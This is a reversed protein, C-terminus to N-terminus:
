GALPLVVRKLEADDPHAVVAFGLQTMLRLMKANDALVDGVISRYGKARACQILAGMLRRGLGCKQWTDAVALAFEVTEGDPTQTYRASGVQRETGDEDVTAILALERDYDVQTFRAIMAPSLARTADMFRFRRAEDSLGRVFAQELPADEPRVPRVRVVRADGVLWEQCLEAPYPHIALHAYRGAGTAANPDIVIRVDGVRAGHDDVVLPNIEVEQLWPLECAMESLALLVGEVVAYDVPPMGPVGELMRAVRTSDILDRALFANLPPLCVAPDQLLGGLPGGAGFRIVPGFAPDRVIALALDRGGPRVDEHEIAVAAATGSPLRSRAHTMLEAFAARVAAPTALGARADAGGARRPLDPSEIRMTAPTGVHEAAFMAETPTRAVMVQPAPIGFSRLLARAEMASLVTRREAVLAEVLSRADTTGALDVPRTQAPAQILLEQNRYYRSITSFLEIVTDPTRFVPIGADELIRRAEVIHEGGMFSCCLTLARKRAVEVIGRAVAAPHALALPSLVVLTAHVGPDAALADITALYREPTADGGLDIPMTGNWDAPLFRKMAAVTDPALRALPVGQARAADAAMAGPGTGNSMIALHNGRPRFGSALAKAAHFLQGIARVRVVGARRIAADFVADELADDTNSKLLIIPKARAASRLSSMFRRANRVREVHLLIYRTEEDYVLYDLADGFDVDAANGLACASSIGIHNMAAWDIVAACMAGSQAVLALDGADAPGSAFTANLHLSPRIVGVSKPGLLRVGLSRATDLIRREVMAASAGAEAPNTVVVAHGIGARGCQEIIQPIGRPATTVIAVDCPSELRDLSPVCAVGLIEAHRPNVAVVKGEYGGALINRLVANGITAENESAGVVAISRPELLARLYHRTLM